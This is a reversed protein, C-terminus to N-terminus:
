KIKPLQKIYGAADQGLNLLLDIISVGKVFGDHYQQYDPLVGYDLYNLAVDNIAFQKEDIYDKAAPGSYYTAAGASKCLQVLRDTKDDAVVQYQSSFTLPTTIGLLECINKTFGYLIETLNNEQQYQQYLKELPDCYYNFGEAKAYSNAVSKWHQMAWKNESTVAENILQQRKGKTIVPISLYQEGHQTRIMNRSRWDRRTYQVDDFLIFEDVQDIIYFYGVWPVYSPQLIAVRKNTLPKTV